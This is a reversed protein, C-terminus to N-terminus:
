APVRSFLPDREAREACAEFTAKYAGPERRITRRVIEARRNDARSLAHAYWQKVPTVARMQQVDQALIEAFVNAVVACDADDNPNPPVNGRCGVLLSSAFM